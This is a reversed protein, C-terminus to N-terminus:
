ARMGPNDGLGLIADMDRVGVGARCFSSDARPRCSRRLPTENPSEGLAPGERKTYAWPQRKTDGVKIDTGTIIVVRWTKGCGTAKSASGLRGLVDEPVGVGHFECAEADLGRLGALTPACHPSSRSVAHSPVSHRHCSM